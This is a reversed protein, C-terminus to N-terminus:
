IRNDKCWPVNIRGLLVATTTTKEGNRDYWFVAAHMTIISDSDLSVRAQTKEGPTEVYGIPLHWPENQSFIQRLVDESLRKVHKGPTIPQTLPM